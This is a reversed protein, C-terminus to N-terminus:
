QRLALMLTKDDRTRSSIRESKLFDTIALSAKYSSPEKSVFNFLPEFFPTFPQSTKQETAVPELGDTILALGLVSDTGIVSVSVRDMYGESSVFVTESPYRGHYPKTLLRMGEKEQVIIAGDGLQLAAIFLESIIVLLLTSSFAHPSLSLSDAHERLTGRVKYLLELLYSEWGKKSQPLTDQSLYSIASQTVLSSGEAAHSASGAGDAATLLLVGDLRSACLCADENGKGKLLHSKGTCSSAVTHWPQM